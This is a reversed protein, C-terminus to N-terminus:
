RVARRRSNTVTAEGGGQVIEVGRAERWANEVMPALWLSQFGSRLRAIEKGRERLEETVGDTGIFVASNGGGGKMPM